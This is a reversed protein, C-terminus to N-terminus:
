SVHEGVPFQTGPWHGTAAKTCPSGVDCTLLDFDFEESDGQQVTRPIGFATYSDDDVWAYGLFFMYDEEWAPSVEKGTAAEVLTFDDSTTDSNESMVWTGSPSLDGDRVLLPSGLRTIDRTLYTGQSDAYSLDPQQAELSSTVLILGREVDNVTIEASGSPAALVTSEGRTTDIRVAGRADRVYLDTGDLASVSPGDFEGPGETRHAPVHTVTDSMTDLTAYRWDGRTEDVWAAARGDSVIERGNRTGLQGVQQATSGDWHFVRRDPDAFVYGNDVQVFLYVEHGVDVSDSGAHIVSGTAYTLPASESVTVPPEDQNEDDGTLGIGVPIAIGAVVAAVALGALARRRTVRQDGAVTIADLDLVPAELADAREHMLNKLLTM